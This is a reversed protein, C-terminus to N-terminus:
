QRQDIIRTAKGEFRKLTKPAVVETDITIGINSRLHEKARKEVEQIKEKGMAHVEPKLEFRVQLKDLYGKKSVVLEYLPAIEGIDFLLSEIGSPFVNVGSIILMDDSRGSVKEIRSFIRGCACQERYFSSIDRTRYRIMPMARRQLSTIVVEGKEEGEVPELTEPNIIEVLYHDDNFHVGKQEECGFAAGPGSLETMGYSEGCTVGFRKEVERRMSDTFPEAALVGVRVPLKRLDVGMEEAREAITLAYNPTCFFGDVEFDKMLMVQRDTMGVSAPVVACGLYEAGCQFGLGGTFLGYGFSNQIVDGPRFGPAWLTRAMCEGWHQMDEKNFATVTPKGTTGSSAHFRFVESRPVALYGFPYNERLDDKVTFPLKVIDELSKIDEPHVGAEDFKKRYAPVREYVWSTVEKLHKLQLEKLADQPMCEYAENWYM